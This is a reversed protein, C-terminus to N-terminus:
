SYLFIECTLLIIKILKMSIAVLSLKIELSFVPDYMRKVLGLLISICTIMEESKYKHLHIIAKGEKSIPGDGTTQQRDGKGDSSEGMAMSHSPNKHIENVPGRPHWAPQWIFRWLSPGSGSSAKEQDREPRDSGGGKRLTRPVRRM